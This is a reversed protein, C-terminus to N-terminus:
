AFSDVDLQAMGVRQRRFFEVLNPGDSLPVNIGVARKKLWLKTRQGLNTQPPLPTPRENTQNAKVDLRAENIVDRSPV